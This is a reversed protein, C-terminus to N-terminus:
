QNELWKEYGGPVEDPSVVNAKFSDGLVEGDAGRRVTLPPVGMHPPPPTEPEFGCVAAGPLEVEDSPVVWSTLPIENQAVRMESNGPALWLEIDEDSVEGFVSPQYLRAHERVLRAQSALAAAPSATEAIVKGVFYLTSSPAGTEASRPVRAYVDGRIAHPLKQLVQYSALQQATAQKQADGKGGICLARRAVAGEDSELARVPSQWDLYSERKPMTVVLYRDGDFGALDGDEEVYWEAESAAVDHSLEGALLETGLVSLSIRKRTIEISVDRKFSADEPLKVVLELQTPDQRWWANSNGSLPGRAFADADKMAPPMSNMCCKIVGHRLTPSVHLGAVLGGLLFIM